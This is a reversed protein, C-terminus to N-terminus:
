YPEAAVLCSPPLLGFSSLSAASASSFSASSSSSYNSLCDRLKQSQNSSAMIYYYLITALGTRNRSSRRSLGVSESPQHNDTLDFRLRSLRSLNSKHPLSSSQRLGDSVARLIGSLPEPISYNYQM